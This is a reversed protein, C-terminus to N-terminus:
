KKGLKQLENLEQEEKRIQRSLKLKKLIQATRKLEKLREIESEVLFIKLNNTGNIKDQEELEIQKLLRNKETELSKVEGIAQMAMKGGMGGASAWMKRHVDLDFIREDIEKIRKQWEEKM